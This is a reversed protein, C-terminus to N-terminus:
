ETAAVAEPGAEEPKVTEIRRYALDGGKVRKGFFSGKSEAACFEAYLEPSVDDYHYISGGVRNGDGDKRKFQLALTKTDANYGYAHIQSSDCPLMEIVPIGKVVEHTETEM